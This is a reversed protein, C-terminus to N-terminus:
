ARHKIPTSIAREMSWGLRLRNHLTGADVGFIEAWETVVHREGNYEVWHSTRRNRAQAKLAIWTCNEPCYNGNVNKREITLEESYGNSVAWERFAAYDHRWEHCVAIGRGGYNPYDHNEKRECRQIMGRWISYLREHRGGHTTRDFISETKVRDRKWCGCSKTLGTILKRPSVVTEKGCDCRCKWSYGKNADVSPIIDIVTLRGYKEGIHERGSYKSRMTGRKSAM